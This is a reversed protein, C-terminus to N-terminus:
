RTNRFDEYVCWRQWIMEWIKNQLKEDLVGSLGHFLIDKDSQKLANLEPFQHKPILKLNEWVSRSGIYNNCVKDEMIDYSDIKDIPCRSLLSLGHDFLPAIRYTRKRNNKLVELNAGHRDRNLILFDVVFMQYIYTQWGMRICFDLPLEDEKGEIM